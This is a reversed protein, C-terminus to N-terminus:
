HRFRRPFIVSFIAGHLFLAIFRQRGLRKRFQMRMMPKVVVGLHLGLQHLGGFIVGRELLRFALQIADSWRTARIREVQRVNQEIIVFVQFLLEQFIQFVVRALFHYVEAYFRRVVTLQAFALLLGFFAFRLFALRRVLDASALVRRLLLVHGPGGVVLLHLVGLPDGGVELLGDLLLQEGDILEPHGESLDGISLM